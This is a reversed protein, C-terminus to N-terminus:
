VYRLENFKRFKVENLKQRRRKTEEMMRLGEEFVDRRKQIREEQKERIQKQLGVLCQLSKKRKMETERQGKEIMEQHKRDAVFLAHM